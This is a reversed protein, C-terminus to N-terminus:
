VDIQSQDGVVLIALGDGLVNLRPTLFWCLIAVFGLTVTMAQM